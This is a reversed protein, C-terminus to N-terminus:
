VSKSPVYVGNKRHIGRVYVRGQDGHDEPRSLRLEHPKWSTVSPAPSTSIQSRPMTIRALEQDTARQQQVAKKDYVTIWWGGFADPATPPTVEFTLGARERTTGERPLDDLMARDAPDNLVRKLAAVCLRRAVQSNVNGYLGIELGAPADPDGYVNFEFNGARLSSYPVNMLTGNAVVTAPIQLLSTGWPQEAMLHLAHAFTTLRGGGPSPVPAPGLEQASAIDGATLTVAGYKLQVLSAGDDGSLLTGEIKEGNKMTYEVKTNGIAKAITGCGLALALPLIMLGRKM